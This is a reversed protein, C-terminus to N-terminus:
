PAPRIPAVEAVGEIGRLEVTVPTGVTWRDDLLESAPVLAVVEGPVAFKTARAVSNVLPGFYDGDRTTLTGYGIAGRAAPLEADRDVAEALATAIRAAVDATDAVFMAEDGIMKVVRGGHRTATEWAAAEFRHLADAHTRASVTTAWSTSGVIDVFGVACRATGEAIVDSLRGLIEGLHEVIARGLMAPVQDLASIAAENAMSLELLTPRTGHDEAVQQGFLSNAADAIRWACAGLVRSFALVQEEGYLASALDFLAVDETATHRVSPADFDDVPFGLAM